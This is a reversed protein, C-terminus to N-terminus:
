MQPQPRLVNRVSLRAPVILAPHQLRPITHDGLGRQQRTIYQVRGQRTVGMNVKRCATSKKKTLLMITEGAIHIKLVVQEMKQEADIM